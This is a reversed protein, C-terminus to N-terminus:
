LQGQGRMGAGPCHKGGPDQLGREEALLLWLGQVEPADAHHDPVLDGVAKVVITPSQQPDSSYKWTVHGGPGLLLGSLPSLALDPRWSPARPSDMWGRQSKPPSVSAWLMSLVQRTGLPAVTASCGQDTSRSRASPPLLPGLPELVQDQSWQMLQGTGERRRHLPSLSVIPACHLETDQAPM